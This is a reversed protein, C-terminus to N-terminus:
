ERHTCDNTRVSWVFSVIKWTTGARVLTVADIGCHSFTTGARFTYYTWVQAVPGDIRVEPDFMREDSTQDTPTTTISTLFETPTRSRISVNASARTGILRATSDFVERLGVTDRARMADFVRHVPALVSDRATAQASARGFPAVTLFAAALVVLRSRM